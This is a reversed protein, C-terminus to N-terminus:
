PHFRFWLVAAAVFIALLLLSGAVWGAMPERPPPARAPAADSM